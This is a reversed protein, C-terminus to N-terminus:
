VPGVRTRLRYDKPSEGIYAKFIKEFSGVNDYGVAESIRIIKQDTTTLLEKARSLRLSTIYNKVTEGFFTRFVTGLHSVSFGLHSSLLDLSLNRDGFHEDIFAKTQNAIRAAPTKKDGELAGLVLAMMDRVVQEVAEPTEAEGVLDWARAVFEPNGPALVVDFDRLIAVLTDLLHLHHHKQLWFATGSDRVTAAFAAYQRGAEAGDLQKIQNVLRREDEFPYFFVSKRARRVAAFPIWLTGPVLSRYELAMRAEHLAEGLGAAAPHVESVGICTLGGPAPGELPAVEVGPGWAVLAGLRRAGPRFFEWAVDPGAARPPVLLGRAEELAPLAGADQFLFLVVQFRTGPRPDLDHVLQALAGAGDDDSRRRLSEKLAVNQTRLGAVHAEIQAFEDTLGPAAPTQLSELLSVVPRYLRPSLRSVVVLAVALLVLPILTFRWLVDWLQSRITFTDVGALFRWGTEPSLESSVLVQGGGTPDGPDLGPVVAEGDENLILLTSGSAPLVEQYIGRFFAESLQVVLFLPATRPWGEIRRIFYTAPGGEIALSVVTQSISTRAAMFARITRLKTELRSGELPSALKNKLDLFLGDVPNYIVAEDYADLLAGQPALTNLFLKKARYDTSRYWSKLDQFEDHAALYALDARVQGFLRDVATRLQHVQAGLAQRQLSQERDQLSLLLLGDSLLVTLVLISLYFWSLRRRFVLPSGM